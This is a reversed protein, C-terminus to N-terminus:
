KMQRPTAQIHRSTASTISFNVVPELHDLLEPANEAWEVLTLPQSVDHLTEFLEMPAASVRYLDWHHIRQYPAAAAYIHELTYTPSTVEESSGLQSVLEKIFTTKGSGLSGSFGIGMGPHIHSCFERVVTPLESLQYERAKM